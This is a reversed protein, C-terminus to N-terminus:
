VITKLAKAMIVRKSMILALVISPRLFMKAPIELDQYLKAQIMAKM